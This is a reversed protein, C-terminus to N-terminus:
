ISIGVRASLAATRNFYYGSAIVSSPVSGLPTEKPDGM